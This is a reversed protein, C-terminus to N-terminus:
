HGYDLFLNLLKIRFRAHFQHDEQMMPMMLMMLMMPMMPLLGELLKPRLVYSERHMFVRGQRVLAPM